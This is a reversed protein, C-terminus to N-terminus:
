LNHHQSQHETRWWASDCIGVFRRKSLCHTMIRLNEPTKTVTPINQPPAPCNGSQSFSFWRRWSVQDHCTMLCDHYFESRWTDLDAERSFRSRTTNQVIIVIIGATAGNRRRPDIITHDGIGTVPGREEMVKRWQHRFTSSWCCCCCCRMVARFFM